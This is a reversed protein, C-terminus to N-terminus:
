IVWPFKRPNEGASAVQQMALNWEMTVSIPANPGFTFKISNRFRLSGATIQPFNESKYAKGREIWTKLKPPNV